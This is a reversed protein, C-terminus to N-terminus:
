FIRERYRKDREHRSCGETERIEAVNHVSKQVNEYEEIVRSQSGTICTYKLDNKKERKQCKKNFLHKEKKEMHFSEICQCLIRNWKKFGKMM